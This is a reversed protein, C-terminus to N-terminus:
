RKEALAEQTLRTALCFGESFAHAGIRWIYEEVCDCYKEFTCRCNGALEKNLAKQHREMLIELNKVEPDQTGCNKSPAINGNWLAEITRM